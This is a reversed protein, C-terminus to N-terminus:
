VVKTSEVPTETSEVPPETPGGPPETDRGGYIRKFIVYAVPGALAALAGGVFYAPSGFLEISTDTANQYITFAM